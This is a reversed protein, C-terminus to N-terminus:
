TNIQHIVEGGRGIVLGPKATVVVIKEGVPTREIRVESIKGKGISAKIFEKIEFEQKKSEIFKKGIM